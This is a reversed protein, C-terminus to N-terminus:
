SSFVVVIVSQYSVCPPCILTNGHRILAVPHVAYPCERVFSPKSPPYPPCFLSEIAVCDVHHVFYPHTIKTVHVFYPKEEM